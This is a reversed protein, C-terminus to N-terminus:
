LVEVEEISYESRFLQLKKAYQQAGKRTQFYLTRLLTGCSSWESNDYISLVWIKM